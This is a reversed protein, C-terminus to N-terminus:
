VEPMVRSNWLLQEDVVHCDHFGENAEEPTGFM